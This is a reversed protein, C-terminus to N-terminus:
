GTIHSKNNNVFGMVPTTATTDNVMPVAPSYVGGHTFDGDNNDIESTPDSEEILANKNRFYDVFQFM